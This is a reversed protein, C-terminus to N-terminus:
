IRSRTRQWLELVSGAGLAVVATALALDVTMGLFLGLVLGPGGLVLWGVLGLVGLVALSLVATLVHGYAPSKV